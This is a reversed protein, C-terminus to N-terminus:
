REAVAASASRRLRRHRDHRIMTALGVFGLLFGALCTWLWNLHGHRSLSDHFPLLVLGLVAWVVIGVVAFPVMPPDPPEVQQSV